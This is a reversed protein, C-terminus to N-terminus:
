KSGLEQDIIEEGIKKLEEKSISPNKILADRQAMLAKSVAIRGKRNEKTKQLENQLREILARQQEITENAAQLRKKLKNAYREWSLAAEYNASAQARNYLTAVNIPTIQPMKYM